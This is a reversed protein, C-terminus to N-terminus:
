SEYKEGVKSIYEDLLQEHDKKDLAREIVKSAVMITHDAIREKLEMLAKEKQFEIEEQARKVIQNSEEHAKQIVEKKVNEGLAKGEALIKQAEERAQALQNKYDNLLAEASERTKNAEELSNRISDERNKLAKTIPKYAVKWLLVLLIVFSIFTWIILGPEAQFM